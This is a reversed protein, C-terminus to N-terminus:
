RRPAERSAPADEQVYRRLLFAYIFELTGADADTLRDTIAQRLTAADRATLDTNKM